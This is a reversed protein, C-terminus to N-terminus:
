VVTNQRLTIKDGKYYRNGDISRLRFASKISSSVRMSATRVGQNPDTYQVTVNIGSLATYLAACQEDTLPILSFTIVPRKRSRVHEAGDMTTVSCIEEVNYDVSYTSLLPSYDTNNIVFTVDIM